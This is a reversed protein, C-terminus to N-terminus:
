LLEDVLQAVWIVLNGRATATHYNGTITIFIVPTHDLFSPMRVHQAFSALECAGSLGNFREALLCFVQLILIHGSKHNSLVALRNTFNLVAIRYNIDIKTSVASNFHGLGEGIIIKRMKIANLTWIYIKSTHGLIVFVQMHWLMDQHARRDKFMCERLMKSASPLLLISNRFSDFKSM